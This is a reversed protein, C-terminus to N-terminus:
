IQMEQSQTQECKGNGCYGHIIKVGNTPITDVIHECESCIILGMEQSAAHKGAEPSTLAKM